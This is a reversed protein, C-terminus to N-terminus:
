QALRTKASRQLMRRAAVTSAARIGPPITLCPVALIERASQSTEFFLNPPVKEHRVPKLLSM